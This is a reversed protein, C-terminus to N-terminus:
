SVFSELFKIFKRYKLDNYKKVREAISFNEIVANKVDSNFKCAVNNVFLNLEQLTKFSTSTVNTSGFSVM